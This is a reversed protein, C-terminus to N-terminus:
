SRRGPSSRRGRDRARRSASRPGRRRSPRCRRRCRGLRPVTGIYATSSMSTATAATRVAPPWAPRSRAATRRGTPARGRRGPDATRGPDAPRSVTGRATRAGARRWPRLPTSRRPTRPSTARTSATAARPGRAARRGAPPRPPRAPPPVGGPQDHARQGARHADPLRRGCCCGPRRRARCAVAGGGHGAPGRAGAAQHRRADPVARRPLPGAGHGRDPLPVRRGAPLRCSWDVPGSMAASGDEAAEPLGLDGTTPSSQPAHRRRLPRDVGLGRVGAPVRGGAGSSPRTGSWRRRVGGPEALQGGAAHRQRRGPGAAVPGAGAPGLALLAGGGILGHM